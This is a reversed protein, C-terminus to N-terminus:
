IENVLAVSEEKTDKITILEELGLIKFINKVKDSLGYLVLRVGKEEFDNIYSIFLGLGASSIYNLKTCNVLLKKENKELAEEISRELIISSSADLDGNLAMEYLEGEKQVSIEM